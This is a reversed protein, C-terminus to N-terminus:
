PLPLPRVGRQAAAEAPIPISHYPDGAAVALTRMSDALLNYRDTASQKRAVAARLEELKQNRIGIRANLEDVDRQYFPFVHQPLTNGSAYRGYSEVARRKGDLRADEAALWARIEKAELQLKVLDAGADVVRERLEVLAVREDRHRHWDYLHRTVQFVILALALLLLPRVRDSVKVSAEGV